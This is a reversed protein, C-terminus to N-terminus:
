QLTICIEQVKELHFTDRSNHVTEPIDGFKGWFLGQVFVLKGTQGETQLCLKFMYAVQETNGIVFMFNMWLDCIFSIIGYGAHIWM